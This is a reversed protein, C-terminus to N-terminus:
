RLQYGKLHFKSNAALAVMAHATGSLAIPAAETAVVGFVIIVGYLGMGLLFGVFTIFSVRSRSNVNFHLLHLAIIILGTFIVAIRMRPNAPQPTPDMSLQKKRQKAAWDGLYGSLIGGFFGGWEVSSTFTSGTYQSHRHDEMLYMQGWDVASTKACFVAMYCVCVVWIFPSSLVTM